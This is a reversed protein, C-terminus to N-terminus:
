IPDYLVYSYFVQECQIPLVYIEIGSEITRTNVMTFGNDHEIDTREIDRENMHLRYWKFEFMVFKFSKYDCEIIDNLYGYYINEYVKIHM